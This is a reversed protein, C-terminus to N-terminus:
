INIARPFGKDTSVRFVTISPVSVYISCVLGIEM